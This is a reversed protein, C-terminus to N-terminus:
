SVALKWEFHWLATNNTTKEKLRHDLTTPSTPDHPGIHPLPTMLPHHPWIHATVGEMKTFGQWPPFLVHWFISLFIVFFKDVFNIQNNFLFVGEWVSSDQYTERGLAFALPTLLFM